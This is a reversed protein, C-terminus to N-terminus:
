GVLLGRELGDGVVVDAAAGVVGALAGRRDHPDLGRALVAGQHAEALGLDGARDAAARQQGGLELAVDDLVGVVPAVVAADDVEGPQGLVPGLAVALVGVDRARVLVAAVSRARGPVAGGVALDGVLPRVAAAGGGPLHLDLLGARVVRGPGLRRRRVV